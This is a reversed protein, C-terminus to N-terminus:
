VLVKLNLRDSFIKNFELKSKQKPSHILLNIIFEELIRTKLHMAKFELAEGLTIQLEQIELNQSFCVVAMKDELDKYVVQEALFHARNLHSGQLDVLQDKSVIQCVKVGTKIALYEEQVVEQM